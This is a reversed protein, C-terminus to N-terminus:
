IQLSMVPLKLWYKSIWGSLEAEREIEAGVKGNRRM